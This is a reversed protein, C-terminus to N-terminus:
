GMMKLDVGSAMHKRLNLNAEWIRLLGLADARFYGKTCDFGVAKQFATRGDLWGGTNVVSIKL